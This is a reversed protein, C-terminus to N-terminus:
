QQNRMELSYTRYDADKFSLVNGVAFEKDTMLLRTVITGPERLAGQANYVKAWDDVTYPVLGEAETTGGNRLMLALFDGEQLNHPAGDGIPQWEVSSSKDRAEGIFIIKFDTSLGGSPVRRLVAPSALMEAPASDNGVFRWEALAGDTNARMRMDAIWMTMGPAISDRNPRDVMVKQYEKPPRPVRRLKRSDEPTLKNVQAASELYNEIWVENMLEQGAYFDELIVPPMWPLDTYQDTQYAHSEVTFENYQPRELGAYQTSNPYLGIMDFPTVRHCQTCKNQNDDLHRLSDNWFNFLGGEESDVFFFPGLPNSPVMPEHAGGPMLAKPARVQDVWPSHLFADANHCRQCQFVEANTTLPSWFEMGKKGSFPSVVVKASKPNAPDYFQFYTSAGTRPHHGIIAVDGSDIFNDDTPRKDRYKRVMFVWQVEPNDGPMRGVVNYPNSQGDGGSFGEVRTPLLMPRDSRMDKFFHGPTQDDVTVPVYAGSQLEWPDDASARDWIPIDRFEGLAERVKEMYAKHLEWDYCSEDNWNTRCDALVPNTLSLLTTIATAFARKLM